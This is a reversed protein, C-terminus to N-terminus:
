NELYDSFIKFYDTKLVEKLLTNSQLILELNSYPEEYARNNICDILSKIKRALLLQEFHKKSINNGDVWYQGEFEKYEVAPGDLRHCKGNVIWYKAYNPFVIAPGHENHLTDTGPKYWRTTGDDDITVTYETM